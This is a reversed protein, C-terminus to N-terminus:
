GVFSYGCGGKVCWHAKNTQYRDICPQNWGPDGSCQYYDVCSPALTKTLTSVTNPQSSTAKSITSSILASATAIIGTTGSDASGTIGFGGKSSATSGVGGSAASSTAASGTSKGSTAGSASSAAPAPVAGYYQYYFTVSAAGSQKVSNISPPSYPNYVWDRNCLGNPVMAAIYTQAGPSLVISCQRAANQSSDCSGGDVFLHGFMSERILTGYSLQGNQGNANVGKIVIARTDQNKVQVILYDQMFDGWLNSSGSSSTVALPSWSPSSSSTSQVLGSSLAFLGGVDLAFLVFAILAVQARSYMITEDGELEM